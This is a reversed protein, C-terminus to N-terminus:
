FLGEAIQRGLFSNAALKEKCNFIEAFCELRVDCHPLTIVQSFTVYKVGRKCHESIIM